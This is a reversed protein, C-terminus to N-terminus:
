SLIVFPFRGTWIKVGGEQRCFSSAALWGIPLSPCLRCNPLPLTGLEFVPHQHALNPPCFLLSPRGSKLVPPPPTLESLSASVLLREVGTNTEGRGEDTGEGVRGKKRKSAM